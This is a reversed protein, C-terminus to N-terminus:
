TQTIELQQLRPVGRLLALPSAISGASRFTRTCIFRQVLHLTAFSLCVVLCRSSSILENGHALQLGSPALLGRVTVRCGIKLRRIYCSKLLLGRFEGYCRITTFIPTHPVKCPAAMFILKHLSISSIMMYPQIHWLLINNVMQLVVELTLCCGRM